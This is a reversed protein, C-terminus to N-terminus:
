RLITETRENIKTKITQLEQINFHEALAPIDHVLRAWEKIKEDLMVTLTIKESQTLEM